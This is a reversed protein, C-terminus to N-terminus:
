LECFFGLKLPPTDRFVLTYPLNDLIPPQITQLNLPLSVQCSVPSQKQPPPNIGWHVSHQHLHVCPSMGSAM